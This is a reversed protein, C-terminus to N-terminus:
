FVGLVERRAVSIESVYRDIRQASEALLGLVPAGTHDREVARTLAALDSRTQDILLVWSALMQRFEELKEFSGNGWHPQRVRM